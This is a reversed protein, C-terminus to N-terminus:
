ACPLRWSAGAARQRCLKYQIECRGIENLQEPSLFKRLTGDADLSAESSSKDLEARCNNFALANLMQHMKSTCFACAPAELAMRTWVMILVQKAPEDHV